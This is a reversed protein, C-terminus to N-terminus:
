QVTVQFTIVGIGGAPLIGTAAVGAGRSGNSDVALGAVMPSTAGDGAVTITNLRTSNAVYTTYAPIPDIVTVNSVSATSHTNKVTITYTITGGPNVTGVPSATKTITVAPSSVTTIVAPIPLTLVAPLAGTSVSFTTSYTGDSGVTTPTGTTLAATLTSKFEGVQTGPAVSGATIATSAGIPILTLTAPAEAVLNGSGNTSAATGLAIASVTYTNVGIQVTSTGATLGTTSGFPVTITGVGSGLAIGGWLQVTATVSPGTAASINTPTNTLLSTTYTDVGNSNSKITYNYNVLAGAVTTQNAPNTVTPLAALTNVTISVNATAFLATSGSLYTVKVTNYITAGGSTAAQAVQPQAFAMCALLALSGFFAKVSSSSINIRVKKMKSGGHTSNKYEKASQYEHL